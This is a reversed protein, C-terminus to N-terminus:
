ADLTQLQKLSSLTSRVLRSQKRHRKLATILDSVKDVSDRLSTRVAEAQEILSAESAPEAHITGNGPAHTTGNTPENDPEKETGNATENAPVVGFDTKKKRPVTRTRQQKPQPSTTVADQSTSEIRIPDPGPKIIGEPDLVAWVYSRQEDQCLMPRNNEFVLLETFGLRLARALYKRNTNLAIAEGTCTSRGLVLETVRPSEASKARLVVRGNLDLTVPLNVGDDQPLRDLAQALYGMDAVSLKLRSKALLAPQIHDALRPFRGEKDIAFHFTWDGVVLSVRDETHGIYVTEPQALERAGFVKNAPILLDETWPFVFGGQVLLHHGDTAGVTGAAGRLQLRHTAYRLPDPNSTDSADRLAALLRPPNESLEAPSSPFGQLVEEPNRFDYRKKQAASGHRWQAEIMGQGCQQIQVPDDKAGECDQLLEMPITLSEVPYQSPVRYEVAVDNYTAKFHLGEAGSQILVVPQRRRATMGLAKRFVARVLRAMSRTITIM